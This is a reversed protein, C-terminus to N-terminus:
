RSLDRLAKVWDKGASSGELAPLSGKKTKHKKASVKQKVTRYGRQDKKDKFEWNRRSLLKELEGNRKAIIIKAMNVAGAKSWRMGRKKFRNALVKDINSEIAGMGRINNSIEDPFGIDLDRYDKLAEWNNLLYNKLEEVKKKDKEKKRYSKAESLVEILKEKDHDKIAEQVQPVYSSRGLKRLIKKNWHYSDLARHQLSPMYEKGTDIWNAGDGSLVTVAEEKFKFHKYMMTTSEEWFRINGFVGGYYKKATLEYEESSPHRKEWGLYSMGLKLEGSSKEENQLYIHVGDTEFFLHDLLQKDESNGPIAGFKFLEETTEKEEKAKKSGLKQVWNHISQHSVSIDLLEEITEQTSRFTSKAVEKIAVDKLAPSQREYAPIGLYEDLLFCYEDEKKDKYYRRKLELEGTKTKLTRKKTDKNKFRDKDRNEMIAKDICDLTKKFGKNAKKRVEKNFKEEFEKFSDSNQLISLADIEIKM